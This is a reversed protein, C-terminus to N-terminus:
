LDLWCSNTKELKWVYSDDLLNQFSDIFNLAAVLVRSYRRRRTVTFYGNWPKWFIRGVGYIRLPFDLLTYIAFFYCGKRAHLCPVYHTYIPLEENATGSVHTKLTIPGVPEPFVVTCIGELFSDGNTDLSIIREWNMAHADPSPLCSTSWLRMDFPLTSETVAICQLGRRMEFAWALEETMKISVGPSWSSSDSMRVSCRM